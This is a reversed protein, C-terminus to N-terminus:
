LSTWHLVRCHAAEGHFCFLCVPASSPSGDNRVVSCRFYRALRHHRPHSCATSLKICRAHVRRDITGSHRPFPRDPLPHTEARTLTDTHTHAAQAPAWQDTGRARTSCISLRQVPPQVQGCCTGKCARSQAPGQVSQRRSGASLAALCCSVTVVALLVRM